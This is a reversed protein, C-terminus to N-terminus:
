SKFKNFIEIWLQLKDISNYLEHDISDLKLIVWSKRSPYNWHNTACCYSALRKDAYADPTYPNVVTFNDMEVYDLDKKVINFDLNVILQNYIDLDREGYWSRDPLLRRFFETKGIYQDSLLVLGLKNPKYFLSHIVGKFWYDILTDTNDGNVQSHNSYHLSDKLKQFLSYEEVPQNLIEIIYPRM